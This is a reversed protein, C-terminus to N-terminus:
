LCLNSLVTFKAHKLLFMGDVAVFEEASVFHHKLVFHHKVM